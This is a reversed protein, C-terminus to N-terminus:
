ARARQGYYRHPRAIQQNRESNGREDNNKEVLRHLNFADAHHGAEVILLANEDVLEDIAPLGDLAAVNNYEAVRAVGRFAIDLANNPNRSISDANLVPLDIDVSFSEVFVIHRAVIRVSTGIRFEDNRAVGVEHQAVM